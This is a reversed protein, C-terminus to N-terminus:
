AKKSRVMRWSATLLSMSLAICALFLGILALDGLNLSQKGCTALFLGSSNDSCSRFGAFDVSLMKGTIGLLVLSAIAMICTGIIFSLRRTVPPKAHKYQNFGANNM